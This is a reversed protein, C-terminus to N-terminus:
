SDRQLLHKEQLFVFLFVFVCFLFYVGAAMKKISHSYKNDAGPLNNCCVRETISKKQLSPRTGESKIVSVKVEKSLKKFREGCGNEKAKCGSLTIEKGCCVSM